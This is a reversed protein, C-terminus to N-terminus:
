DNNFYEPIYEPHNRIIEGCLNEVYEKDPIIRGDILDNLRNQADISGQIWACSLWFVAQEPDARTGEGLILVDGVAVESDIHGKQASIIFHDFAKKDRNGGEYEGTKCLLGFFYNAYVNGGAIAKELYKFANTKNKRVGEGSLYMKTTQLAAYANGLDAARKFQVFARPESIEKGELGYLYCDAMNICAMAEDTGKEGTKEYRKAQKSKLIEINDKDREISYDSGSFDDEFDFDDANRQKFIEYVANIIQENEIDFFEGAWDPEELITVTEEQEEEDILVSYERGEFSIKDLILYIISEGDETEFEVTEYKKEM